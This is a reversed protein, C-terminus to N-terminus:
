IKWNWSKNIGLVGGFMCCIISAIIMIASYITLSFEQNIISSFLYIIILYIGGILAGNLMGNKNMKFNAITSGIFISIATITIITPAIINESINSYTLILSFILLLILTSLFSIIVGKLVNLIPISM